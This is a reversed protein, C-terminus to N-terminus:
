DDGLIFILERIVERLFKLYDHHSFNLKFDRSQQPQIIKYYLTTNGFDDFFDDEFEFMWKSNPTIETVNALEVIPQSSDPLPKNKALQSEEELLEEKEEPLDYLINTLITKAHDVTIHMFAGGSALNLYDQNKSNLGLFFHQLLMPEPVALNPGFNVFSNFRDWAKGLLEM